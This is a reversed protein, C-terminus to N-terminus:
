NTKVPQCNEVFLRRDNMRVLGSLTNVVLRVRGEYAYGHCGRAHVCCAYGNESLKLSMGLDVGCRVNDRGAKKM